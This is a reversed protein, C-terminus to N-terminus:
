GSASFFMWGSSTELVLKDNLFAVSRVESLLSLFQSAYSGEACEMLTVAAPGLTLNSGSVTYTGSGSNCDATVLYTGDEQITLSYKGPADVLMPNAGTNAEYREWQWIIGTISNVVDGQREDQIIKLAGNSLELTRKVQQSPCCMPDNPGPEITELLVQGDKIQLDQIKVRDSLPEAPSPLAKGEQRIVGAIYSFMGTGGSSTGLIVVADGIGDGNLDGQVSQLYEVQNVQTAGEGYKEEFRGEKLPVDGYEPLQYTLNRLTSEAIAAQDAQSTLTPTLQAVPASAAKTEEAPLTQGPQANTPSAPNPSCSSLVLILLIWVIGVQRLVSSQLQKM